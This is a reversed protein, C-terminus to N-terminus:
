HNSLAEERQGLLDGPSAGTKPYEAKKEQLAAVADNCTAEDIEDHAYKLRVAKIKRDFAALRKEIDEAEMRDLEVKVVEWNM